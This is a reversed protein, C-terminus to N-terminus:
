DYFNWVFGWRIQREPMPYAYVVQHTTGLPNQMAFFLTVDKIVFIAHIWPVVVADLTAASYSDEVFTPIPGFRKGWYDGGFRLSADLDGSFFIRHFQLYASGSTHPMNLMFSDHYRIEKAKATLSLWSTLSNSVSLDLSVHRQEPQNEYVMQGNDGELPLRIEDNIRSASLALFFNGYRPHQFLAGLGAHDSKVPALSTLGTALPSTEYL